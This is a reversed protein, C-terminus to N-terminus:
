LKVINGDTSGTVDLLCSRSRALHYGLLSETFFETRDAITRVIFNEESVVECRMLIVGLM